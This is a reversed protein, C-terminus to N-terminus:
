IDISPGFFESTIRFSSNYDLGCALCTNSTVTDIGFSEVLKESHKVIYNTDMMPLNRVFEEKKIPDLKVGDVTDIMHQLTFLFATDGATNNSKKNLEKSQIKIEDTMRPTQMRLKIKKQTKPLTFEMYKTFDTEDFTTVNLASLDITSTQISGCYPCQISTNYDTGYTVIRLKHLLFQYDALCLDYASIGIDNVICDDIVECINQYAKDSPALRKMEHETTMSRLKVVPNVNESYVKGLSPLTYEEAITYNNKDM